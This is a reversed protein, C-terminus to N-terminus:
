SDLNKGGEVAWTSKRLHPIPMPKAPSLCTDRPHDHPNAAPPLCLRDRHLMPLTSLQTLHGRPGRLPPVRTGDYLDWAHRHNLTTPGPTFRGTSRLPLGLGLCPVRIPEWLNYQSAQTYACCFSTLFKRQILPRQFTVVNNICTYRFCM